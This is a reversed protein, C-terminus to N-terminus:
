QCCYHNQGGSKILSRTEPAYDELPETFHVELSMSVISAVFCVGACVSSYPFEMPTINRCLDYVIPTLLSGIRGATMCFATGTNRCTSPFCCAMVLYVLQFICHSFIKALCLSVLALNYWGVDALSIGANFVVLLLLIRCICLRINLSSKIIGFALLGGFVELTTILLLDTAPNTRHKPIHREFNVLSYTLGHYVFNMAFCLISGVMTQYVLPRSFIQDFRQEVSLVDSFTETTVLFPSGRGTWSQINWLVSQLRETHGRVLLWRPSENLFAILLPLAVVSPM